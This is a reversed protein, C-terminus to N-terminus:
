VFEAHEQDLTLYDTLLLNKAHSVCHHRCDRSPDIAAVRKKNERSFWFKRFSRDKISGLLGSDTYAKDQCSYVACDAGIVVLLRLSPCTKYAKDFREDMRHYHDVISFGPGELARSLEIQGRVADAISAHYANNEPGSNGVVCASLKVSSVGADRAQRCFDAIHPANEKGVIFSAGLACRSGRAAFARMNEMVGAYAEPGVGRSRAYSPGDWADISVRVWTGHRAFAAAADGQLRSGNTLAAVRLGARALRRVIQPLRPYLLPEGGGSFTVARVGMAILDGVIADMKDDPIRDRVRMQDGLQLNDARYACYWCHHNCANIPKIRVHVPAALRGARIAELRDPYRFAKLSSYAHRM